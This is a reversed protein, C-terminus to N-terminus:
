ITVNVKANEITKCATEQFLDRYKEIEEYTTDPAFKLYLDIYLTNGSTRTKVMEFEDYSACTASLIKLIEIQVDEDATKDLIEDISTKLRLLAERMIMLGLIICAIPSIYWGPRFDWVCFSILVCILTASDFMLDKKANALESELVHSKTVKCVKLQKVYFYVDVM